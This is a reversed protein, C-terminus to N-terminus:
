GGDRALRMAAAMMVTQADTGLARAMQDLTAVDIARSPKLYRQVSVLPIGSRASLDAQSLGQAAVEGRLTAAVAGNLGTSHTDM